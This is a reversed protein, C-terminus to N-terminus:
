PNWQYHLSTVVSKKTASPEDLEQNLYSLRLQELQAEVSLQEEVAIQIDEIREFESLLDLAKIVDLGQGSLHLVFQAQANHLRQLEIKSVPPLNKLYREIKVLNIVDNVGEITMSISKKGFVESKISYQSAFYDSLGNIMERVVNFQEGRFEQKLLIQNNDMLQFDLIWNQQDDISEHYMRAMVYHDTGYPASAQNVMHDFKAWIDSSYIETEIDDNPLMLPLGRNDASQILLESIQPATELDVITRNLGEEMVLWVLTQPRRQGWISAGVNRLLQDIKQQDFEDVLFTRNQEDSIFTFSKIYNATRLRVERKIEKNALIQRSGTVKTIVQEIAWRHAKVRTKQTRDTVLIKGTYLNDVEVAYLSSTPLFSFLVFLTIYLSFKLQNNRKVM